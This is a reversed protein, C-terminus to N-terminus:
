RRRPPLAKQLWDATVAGLEPAVTRGTLTAYEAIEGTAAPVFYHNLSPFKVIEAGTGRPRSRALAALEDAHHLPVQRDLEGHVVLIPLRVKRMAALPDFELISRYELTDAQRRLEPPISAWGRGTLVATLIKKQLEIAQQREAEPMTSRGLMLRQQELVLDAGKTASAGALVLARVREERDAALLGVWGGEGLGFIALRDEDVDDRRRLFRVISRVDEAFDSLTAAEPRGGSQGTGRRDYRVVVFGADALSSAIQGFIPIGGITEDRDTLNSGGVLIVAPLAGAAGAPRSITAALNFGAAPIFLLEDNGRAAAAIRSGVAAVDERAVSLAQTPMDFRVLRRGEIWVDAPVEGTPNVFVVRWRRTQIVRDVTQITEDTVSELRLPIEGQPLVYAKIETGPEAVGLRVALAEYASFALNPLIVADPSVSATTNAAEGNRVVDVRAPSGASFGGRVAVTEISTSLELTADRPLWADTYNVEIRTLNVDLPAGLRSRGRITWGDATRGLTVDATGIAAGRLFVRFTASGTAPEIAQPTQVSPSAAVAAGAALLAALSCHRLFGRNM